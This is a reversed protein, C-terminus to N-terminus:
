TMVKTVAVAAQLKNELDAIRAVAEALTEVLGDYANCAEIIFAATAEADPYIDRSVRGFVEAICYQKGNITAGIAYDYTGDVPVKAKQSTWPTKMHM